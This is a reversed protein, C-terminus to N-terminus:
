QYFRVFDDMWIMYIQILQEDLRHRAIQPTETGLKTTV